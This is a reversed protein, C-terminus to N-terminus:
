STLVTSAATKSHGNTGSHGNTTAHGNTIAHGNTAAHGNTHNTAAPKTNIGWGRDLYKKRLRRYAIQLADSPIHVEDALEVPVSRPYQTESVRSDEAYIKNYYKMFIGDLWRFRAFSRFLIRKSITVHENVPFHIAYNVLRVSDSGSEVKTINPLYFTFRSYLDTQKNKHALSSFLGKPRTYNSYTYTATIGWDLEEVTYHGVEPNDKFGSGFSNAHVIPLHSVDISNELVRTYHTNVQFDLYSKHLTPDDFEPLPPIPPREAAPLDGYFIWVFGYKEQVSYADIHARRPVPTGAENAPIDVCKGDPAFKWGHYPCRLCDDELLGISLAAGRHSCQDKLAVVQGKSDRYLAFRQNLMVIQKPERTVAQSHECAYWFNKLM